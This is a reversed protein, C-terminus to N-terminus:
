QKIIGHKLGYAEALDQEEILMDRYNQLQVAFTNAEINATEAMIKENNIDLSEWEWKAVDKSLMKDSDVGEAINFLRIAQKIPTLLAPRTKTIAERRMMDIMIELFGLQLQGDLTKVGILEPVCGTSVAMATSFYTLDPTIDDVGDVGDGYVHSKIDVDGIMRMVSDSARGTVKSKAIGSIYADKMVDMQKSLKKVWEDREEKTMMDDEPMKASLITMVAPNALRIQSDERTIMSRLAKRAFYEAHYCIPKGWAYKPAFNPRYIGTTPSKDFVYYVQRPDSYLWEYRDAGSAILRPTFLHSDYLRVSEPYLGDLSFEYPQIGNLIGNPAMASLWLALGSQTDHATMQQGYVILSNLFENVERQYGEDVHIFTPIGAVQAKLDAAKSFMPFANMLVEYDPQKLYPDGGIEDSLQGLIKDQSQQQFFKSAAYESLSKQSIQPKIIALKTKKTGRWFAIRPLNM